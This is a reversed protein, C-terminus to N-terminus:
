KDKGNEKKTIEGTDMNLVSDPGYKDILKKEQIGFREQISGINRIVDLKQLELEGLAMKKKNFETNLTRITQLEIDTVKKGQAELESEKKAITNEEIADYAEQRTM